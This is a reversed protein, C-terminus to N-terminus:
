KGQQHKRSRMSTRTMSNVPFSYVVAHRPINSFIDRLRAKLLTVSIENLSANILVFAVAYVVGLCPILVAMAITLDYAPKVNPNTEETVRFIFGPIYLLIYFFPYALLSKLDKQMRKHARREDDSRNNLPKHFKILFWLLYVHILFMLFSLFFLPIYWAGFRLGTDPKIWCWLGAHGYSDSFFPITSWIMSGFWVIVHYWNYHNKYTKRKVILLSNMTIMLVWLLTTCDFYQHFFGKVRCYIAHSNHPHTLLIALSRFFGSVSLWFILRQTTSRYKKLIIILLVIVACGVLSLSSFTRQVYLIVRCRHPDKPWLDCELTDTANHEHTM